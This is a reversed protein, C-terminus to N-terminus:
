NPGSTEGGVDNETHTHTQHSIGGSQIDVTSTLPAGSLGSFNAASITGTCSINGIVHLNGTLEFDGAQTMNGTRTYDGVQVTDGQQHITAPIPIAGALPNIGVIAFGDSYDHMRHEAPAKFDEGGYWRDFCRETFVLLCYDGVAIPHATYSGGGQLFVPPVEVFEPLPVPEGGVVRATVPLCDITTGNVRSVRAVTATHLDALAGDIALMMTDILQKNDSM